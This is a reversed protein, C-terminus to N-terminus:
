KGGNEAATAAGFGHPVLGKQRMWHVASRWRDESIERKSAHWNDLVEKILRDDDVQEGRILFDNWAMYLTALIEAQETTMPRITAMLQDFQERKDGWYRDFYKRHGGRKEMPQYEYGMDTKIPKFWKLRELQAHISRMMPNDFPGAAARQPRSQIEGLRLHREALIVGKQLKIWGFKPTGQHQEVIEAALV